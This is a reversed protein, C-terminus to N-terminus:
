LQPEALMGTGPSREVANVKSLDALPIGDGEPAIVAEVLISLWVNTQHWYSEPPPAAQLIAYRYGNWFIYDGPGPFYDLEELTLRSIIFNDQRKAQLGAAKVRWDPKVHMNIAPVSIPSRATWATRGSIPAHFVKERPQKPDAEFFKPRFHEPSHKEIAEKNIKLATQTDVRSFIAPDVPYQRIDSFRM